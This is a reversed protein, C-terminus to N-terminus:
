FTRLQISVGRILETIRLKISMITHNQYRLGRPVVKSGVPTTAKGYNGRELQKRIWTLKVELRPDGCAM